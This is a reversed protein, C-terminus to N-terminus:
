FFLHTRFLFYYTVSFISSILYCLLFYIGFFIIIILLNSFISSYSIFLLIHGLFYFQNPLLAKEEELGSGGAEGSLLSTSLTRSLSFYRRGRRESKSTM